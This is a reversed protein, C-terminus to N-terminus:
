MPLTFGKVTLSVLSQGMADYLPTCGHPMYDSFNEPVEGIPQCDILTRMFPHSHDKSFLVLTVHHQQTEAFEKQSQRITDLTENIGSLTAERLHGMSGSEDVIMLNYVNMM